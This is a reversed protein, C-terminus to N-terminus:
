GPPQGVRGPHSVAQETADHGTRHGTEHHRVLRRTEREEVGPRDELPVREDDGALVRHHEGVEGGVLEGGVEPQHLAQGHRDLLAQAGAAGEHRHVVLHRLRHGVQV